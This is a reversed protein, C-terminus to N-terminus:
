KKILESLSIIRNYFYDIADKTTVVSINNDLKEKLKVLKRNNSSNLQRVSM